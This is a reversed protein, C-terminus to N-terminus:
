VSVSVMQKRKWKQETVKTFSERDGTTNDRLYRPVEQKCLSAQQSRKDAQRNKKEGGGGGGGGEGSVNTCNLRPAKPSLIFFLCFCLM